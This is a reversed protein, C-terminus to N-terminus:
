KKRLTYYFYHVMRFYNENQLLRHLPQLWIQKKQQWNYISTSM